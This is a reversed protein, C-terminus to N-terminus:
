TMYRKASYEAEALANYILCAKEYLLIKLHHKWSANDMTEPAQWTPLTVVKPKKLLANKDSDRFCKYFYLGLVYSENSFLVKECHLWKFFLLIVVSDNM